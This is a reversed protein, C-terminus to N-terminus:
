GKHELSVMGTFINRGCILTVMTGRAVEVMVTNSKTILGQRIQVTHRGPEVAAHFHGAWGTLAGVEAGDVFVRLAIKRNSYWKLAGGGEAEFRILTPTVAETWPVPRDLTRLSTLLRHLDPSFSQSRIEFANFSALQRLSAPLDGCIAGWTALPVQFLTPVIKVGERIAVELLRRLPDNPDVFYPPADAAPRVWRRCVLILMTARDPVARPREGAHLAGLTLMVDPALQALERRLSLAFGAADDDRYSLHIRV